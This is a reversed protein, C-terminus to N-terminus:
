VICSCQGVCCQVAQVRGRSRHKKVEEEGGESESGSEGGSGDEGEVALKKM